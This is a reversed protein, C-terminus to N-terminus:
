KIHILEWALLSSILVSQSGKVQLVSRKLASRQSARSLTERSKLPDRSEVRSLVGKRSPLAVVAAAQPTSCPRTANCRTANLYANCHVHVLIQRRWMMLQGMWTMVQGKQMVGGFSRFSATHFSGGGGSSLNTEGDTTECAFTSVGGVCM